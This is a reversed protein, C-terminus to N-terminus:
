NVETTPSGLDPTGAQRFVSDRATQPKGVRLNTGLATSFFFNMEFFVIGLSYMDAKSHNTPGRKRTQVEPAIYLRTGVDLTMEGNPIVARRSVDSPDVAIFINTLKIDRHLIGLTSMHVLADVIQQFLRWAENETIGEDIREKLTQREVFESTTLLRYGDLSHGSAMQIYLTRQILPTPLPPLQIAMTGQEFMKALDRQDLDSDSGSDAGEEERRADASGDFHISPFSGRSASPEDLDDLNFLMWDDLSTTVQRSSPVSTRMDSTAEDDFGSDSDSDSDTDDDLHGNIFNNERFIRADVKMTRLRIKKVAYIRGDIKNKAKVVSGFAGRGLLELEEWDEKWRSTHRAAMAPRFYEIEPSNGVNMATPTKPGPTM